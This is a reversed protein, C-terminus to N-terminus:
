NNVNHKTKQEKVYNEYIQIYTFYKKTTIENLNIPVKFYQELTIITTEISISKDNIRMKESLNRELIAIKATLYQKNQILKELKLLEINRLENYYLKIKDTIGFENFYEKYIKNWIRKLQKRNVKKEKKFILLELKNTKLIKFWLDAPLTEISDYM